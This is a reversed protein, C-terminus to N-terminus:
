MKELRGVHFHFTLPYPMDAGVPIKTRAVVDQVCADYGGDKSTSKVVTPVLVQGQPGVFFAVDIDAPFEPPLNQQACSDVQAQTQAQLSQMKEELEKPVTPKMTDNKASFQWLSGVTPGPLPTISSSNIKDLICKEKEAPGEWTVTKGSLKGDAGATVAFIGGKLEPEGAKQRLCDSVIKNADIVEQRRKEVVSEGQFPATSKGGGTSGTTACASALMPLVPLAFMLALPKTKM